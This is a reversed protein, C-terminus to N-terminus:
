FVCVIFVVVIFAPFFFVSLIVYQLNMLSSTFFADVFVPCEYRVQFVQDKTESEGTGNCNGIFLDNSGEMAIDHDAGNEEM